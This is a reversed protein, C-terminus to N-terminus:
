AMVEGSQMALRKAIRLGDFHEFSRNPEQDVVELMSCQGNKVLDNTLKAVGKAADASLQILKITQSICHLMDQM